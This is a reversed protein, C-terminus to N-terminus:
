CECPWPLCLPRSDNTFNASLRAIKIGSESSLIFPPRCRYSAQALTENQASTMTLMLVNRLKRTSIPAALELWEKDGGSGCRPMRTWTWGAACVLGISIVFPTPKQIQQGFIKGAPEMFIAKRCDSYGGGGYEM